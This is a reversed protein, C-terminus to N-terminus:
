KALLDTTLGISCSPRSSATTQKRIGPTLIDMRRATVTPWSTILTTRFAERSPRSPFRVKRMWRSWKVGIGLNPMPWAFTSSSGQAEAKPLLPVVRGNWGSANLRLDVLANSVPAGKTDQVSGALTVGPQLIFSVNSPTGSFEQIAALNRELDRALMCNTVSVFGEFGEQSVPKHLQLTMEYRGSNDTSVEAAHPAEYYHGPYLTVIVGRAPTGFLDRVTGSITVSPHEAGVPQGHCVLGLALNLGLIFALNQFSRM